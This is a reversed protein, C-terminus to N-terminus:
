PAIVKKPRGPKAKPTEEVPPPVETEDAAPTEVPTELEVSAPAPPPTEEAVPMEPESEVEPLSPAAPPTEPFALRAALIEEAKSLIWDEQEKQTLTPAQDEDSAPAPSETGILAKVSPKLKSPWEYRSRFIADAKANLEEASLEKGDLIHLGGHDASRLFVFPPKPIRAPAFSNQLPLHILFKMITNQLTFAPPM